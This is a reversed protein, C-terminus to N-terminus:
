NDVMAANSTALQIKNQSNTNVEENLYGSLAKAPSLEETTISNIM